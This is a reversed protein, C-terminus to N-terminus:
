RPSASTASFLLPLIAVSVCLLAFSKDWLCVVAPSYWRLNTKQAYNYPNVSANVPSM